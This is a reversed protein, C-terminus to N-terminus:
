GARATAADIGLAAALGAADARFVTPPQYRGDVLVARRWDRGTSWVSVDGKTFTAADHWHDGPFGVVWGDAAAAPIAMLDERTAGHTGRGTPAGAGRHNPDGSLVTERVYGPLLALAADAAEAATATM